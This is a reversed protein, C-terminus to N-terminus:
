WGLRRNTKSSPETSIVHGTEGMGKWQLGRRIFIIDFRPLGDANNPNHKLWEDPTIVFTAKLTRKNFPCGLTEHSYVGSAFLLPGSDTITVDSKTGVTSVVSEVEFKQVEGDGLASQHDKMLYWAANASPDEFSNPDMGSKNCDGSVASDCYAMIRLNTDVTLEYVEMGDVGPTPSVRAYFFTRNEDVNKSGKPTYNGQLHANSQAATSAAYLASFNVDVPSVPSLYRKKFNYILKAVTTGRDADSFDGASLTGNLDLNSQNTEAVQGNLSQQFPVFTGNTDTITAEDPSMTRAMWVEVDQAACGNTFNTTVAGKKNIATINGEIKFGMTQNKELDNMYLWEASSGVNKVSLGSLNFSYPNFFLQMQTHDNSDSASSIVCGSRDAGTISTNSEKNICDAYDPYPKLKSGKQDVITWENDAIEYTYHGVNDNAITATLLKGDDFLYDNQPTDNKDACSSKDAFTLKTVEKGSFNKYYKKANDDKKWLTANADIRYQYGAAYKIKDHTNNRAVERISSSLNSENNDAIVIRYSEPRIAFNDRSCVPQGFNVKLCEYCGSGSGSCPTSCLGNKDLQSKVNAYERSFCRDRDLTSNSEYCANDFVMSGNVDSIYWIRFAASRLAVPVDLKRADLPARSINNKFTVFQSNHIRHKDYDHCVTDFGTSSNNEFTSADFLEVEVGVKSIKKETSSNQEYSVVDVPFPRGSIQTYLTYKKPIAEGTNNPREVSFRGYTPSYVPSTECRPLRFFAQTTSTSYHYPVSGTGFDIHTILDIDIHEHVMLPQNQKLTYHFKAYYNTNPHILGGDKIYGDDDGFGIASYSARTDNIEAPLYASTTSPSYEASDFNWKGADLGRVVLISNQLDFDAQTTKIFIKATMNRDSSIPGDINHDSASYTAGTGLDVTYDYCIQPKYLEASFAIMSPTVYDRSSSLGIYVTNINRDADRYKTMISSVNYNEVDIGNNNGELKNDGINERDINALIADFINDPDAAGPMKDANSLNAHRSMIMRDYDDSPTGYVYEGEGAFASFSASVSNENPLKFGSIKVSRIGSSHPITTYGNYISINRAKANAGREKYIVIMSWGGYNGDDQELGENTTLNALTVTHKGAGLHQSKIWSTVDAFAAYYGGLSGKRQNYYLTKSKVKTYTSNNDLKIWVKDADSKPISIETSNDINTYTWGGNGDLSARRQKDGYPNYNHVAGQWFLGAWLIGDGNTDDYSAPLTFNSSSSNWTSQDNDIDIYRVLKNNNNRYKSDTCSAGYNSRSGTVCEVTNGLIAFNGIINRTSPPNVLIFDHVGKEVIQDTVDINFTEINSTGDKDDASATCSTTGAQTPTGSLIGTSTDFSLGPINCNLHYATIPDGNTKTVYSSLDLSIQYGILIKQDPIPSLIPPMSSFIETITAEYKDADSGTEKFYLIVRDGASVHFNVRHNYTDHTDPYVTTGGSVVVLHYQHQNPSSTNIVIDGDAGATFSYYDEDSKSDESLGSICKQANSTKNDLETITVGPSMGNTADNIGTDYSCDCGTCTVAKASVVSIQMGVLAITIATFIKKYIKM